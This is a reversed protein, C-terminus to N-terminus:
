PTLSVNPKRPLVIAETTLATTALSVAIELAVRVVKASDLIGANWMHAVRRDVVDYGYGVGSRRVEALIPAPSMGVNRILWTMPAELARQM